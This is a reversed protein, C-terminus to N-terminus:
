ILKDGGIREWSGIEIFNDYISPRKFVCTVSWGGNKKHTGERSSEM